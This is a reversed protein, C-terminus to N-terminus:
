GTLRAMQKLRQALLSKLDTKVGFPNADIGAILDRSAVVGQICKAFIAKAGKIQAQRAVADTTSHAQELSQALRRDLADLVADLQGMNRNIQDLLHPAEKAMREGIAVKLSGVITEVDAYTQHWIHRAEELNPFPPKSATGAPVVGPPMTSSPKCHADLSPLNLIALLGM